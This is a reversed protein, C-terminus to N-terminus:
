QYTCGIKKVLELVKGIKLLSHCANRWLDGIFNTASKKPVSRSLDFQIKDLM